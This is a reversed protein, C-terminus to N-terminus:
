IMLDPLEDLRNIDREGRALGEKLKTGLGAFRYDPIYQLEVPLHNIVSNVLGSGKNNHRKRVSSM